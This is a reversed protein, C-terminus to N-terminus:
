YIPTLLPVAGPCEIVIGSIDAGDPVYWLFRYEKQSAYKDPPKVFGILGPSDEFEKYSREKYIIQGRLSRIIEAKSTLSSTVVSHFKDVSTIKVCYKGFTKSLGDDSFGLTTCLVYADHLYTTRSNNEITVGIANQAIHIGARAAMAVFVPDSGNGTIRRGTNFREFGEESDGQLPDEYERCRKLTSIFIQGKAFAAAHEEKDFYRYVASVEKQANEKAIKKADRVSKFGSNSARDSRRDWWNERAM